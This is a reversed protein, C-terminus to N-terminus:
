FLNFLLGVTYTNYDALAVETNIRVLPFPTINLGLVLRNVDSDVEESIPIDPFGDIPNEMSYRIQTNGTGISYAAYPELIIFSKSVILDFGTAETELAEGVKLRNWNAQLGIRPMLLPIHFIENFEWRLSAGMFDLDGIDENIELSMYRVGIQFGKILGKNISLMPLALAKAETDALIGEEEGTSFPLTVFRLGVDLGAIGKSRGSHFSASLAMQTAVDGLPQTYEDIADPNSVSLLDDFTLAQAAMPLALFLSLFLTKSVTM